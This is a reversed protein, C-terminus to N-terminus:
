AVPPKGDKEVEKRFTARNGCSCALHWFSGADHVDPSERCGLCTWVNHGETLFAWESGEVRRGRSATPSTQSKLSRNAREEYGM